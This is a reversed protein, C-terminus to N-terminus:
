RLAEAVVETGADGKHRFGVDFAAGSQARDWISQCLVDTACSV